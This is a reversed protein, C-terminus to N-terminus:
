GGSREVREGQHQRAQGSRVVAVRSCVRAVTAACSAPVALRSRASERMVMVGVISCAPTFDLLMGAAATKFHSARV